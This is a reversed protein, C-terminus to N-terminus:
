IPLLKFLKELKGRRRGRYRQIEWLYETIQRGLLHLDREIQRLTVREENTIYYMDREGLGKLCEKITKEIRIAEEIILYPDDQELQRAQEEFLRQIRGPLKEIEIWITASHITSTARLEKALKPYRQFGDQDKQAIANFIGTMDRSLKDSSAFGWKKINWLPLGMEKIRARAYKYPNTGSPAVIVRAVGADTIKHGHPVIIESGLPLRLSGVVWTDEPVLNVVRKYVEKLPVLIAYKKEGWDNGVHAGVPGNMTFHITYRLYDKRVAATPIIVGNEPFHDTMHVLMVMRVAIKKRMEENRKLFLAIKEQITVDKKQQRKALTLIEDYVEDGVSHAILIAAAEHETRELTSKLAQIEVLLKKLHTAEVALDRKLEPKGVADGLKEQEIWRKQSKLTINIIKTTEFMQDIFTRDRAVLSRLARKFDTGAKRFLPMKCMNQVCEKEKWEMNHEHKTLVLARKILQLMRKKVEAPIAPPHIVKGRRLFRRLITPKELYGLLTAQKKHNLEQLYLAFKEMKPLVHQVEKTLEKAVDHSVSFDVM